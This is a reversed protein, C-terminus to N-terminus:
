DRLSRELEEVDRRAREVDDLGFIECYLKVALDRDGQRLVERVDFMTPAQAQVEKLYAKQAKRAMWLWYVQIVLISIAVISILIYFWLM